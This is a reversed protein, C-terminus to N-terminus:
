SRPARRALADRAHALLRERENDAPEDVVRELLLALLEGIVPGPALGLSLMLDKGSVALDRTSLAQGAALLREVRERLRELASVDASADRGKGLADAFGLEYLDPALEPGVRRLWRRVAADTWGDSYCILHHQVLAVIKAQEANSFRLRELIPGVMRAGVAEHDYFTYDRTKESLERTRPKGVDHLLAAVRLVPEPKCADLCAMAHGWVDFAHYRNQECGVSELLEPCMLELLGTQRMTEFAREPPAGEDDEDV